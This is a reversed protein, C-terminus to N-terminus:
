AVMESKRHYACWMIRMDSWIVRPDVPQAGQMRSWDSWRCGVGTMEDRTPCRTTVVFGIGNLESDDRFSTRAFRYHAVAARLAYALAALFGFPRTGM